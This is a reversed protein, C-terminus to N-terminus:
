PPPPTPLPPSTPPATPPPSTPPPAKTATPGSSPPKRTSTPLPSNYTVQIVARTATPTATATNLPTPTIIDALLSSSPTLSLVPAQFGLPQPTFASPDNPCSGPGTIGNNYDALKYILQLEQMAEDPLLSGGPAHTGLFDSADLVESEIMVPDSGNIINLYATNFHLFLVATIDPTTAQIYGLADAKTYRYNGVVFQTPWTDAHDVWYAPPYTCNNASNQQPTKNNTNTLHIQTSVVSTTSTILESDSFGPTATRLGGAAVLPIGPNQSNNTLIPISIAVIVILTFTILILWRALPRNM